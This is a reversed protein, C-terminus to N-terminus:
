PSEAVQRLEIVAVDGLADVIPQVAGAITVRLEDAGGCAM